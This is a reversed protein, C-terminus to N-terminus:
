EQEVSLTAWKSNGVHMATIIMAKDATLTTLLDGAAKIYNSNYSITRNSTSKVYFVITTGIVVNDGTPTHLSLTGAQNSINYHTYQDCDPTLSSITTLERVNVKPGIYYPKGTATNFDLLDTTVVTGSDNYVKSVLKNDSTSTVVSLNEAAGTVQAPFPNEQGLNITVRPSVINVSWVWRFEITDGRDMSYTRDTHTLTVSTSHEGQAMSISTNTAVTEWSGTSDASSDYVRAELTLSGTRADPEGWTFLDVTLDTDFTMTTSGSRCEFKGSDERVIQLPFDSLLTQDVNATINQTADATDTAVAEAQEFNYEVAQDDAIEGFGVISDSTMPQYQTPNNVPLDSGDNDELVLYLINQYRIIEDKKRSVGGVYHRIPSPQTNIQELIDPDLFYGTIQGNVKKFTIQYDGSTSSPGQKPEHWAWKLGAPWIIYWRATQYQLTVEAYQGDLMTITFIPVANLPFVHFLDEEADLNHTGSITFTQTDYTTNGINYLSRDDLNQNDDTFSSFNIKTAEPIGDGDYRIIYGPESVQPITMGYPTRVMFHFQTDKGATGLSFADGEYSEVSGTFVIKTKNLSASSTAVDDVKFVAEHEFTGGSAENYINIAITDIIYLDTNTETLDNNNIVLELSTTDNGSAQEITNATTGLSSVVGFTLRKYPVVGVSAQDQIESM